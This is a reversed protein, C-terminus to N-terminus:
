LKAGFNVPLRMICNPGQARSLEPEDKIIGIKTQRVPLPRKGRRQDYKLTDFWKEVNVAINEYLAETKILSEADM